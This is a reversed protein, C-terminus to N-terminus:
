NEQMLYKKDYSQKQLLLLYGMEYLLLREELLNIYFTIYKERLYNYKFHRREMLDFLTTERNTGHEFWLGVLQNYYNTLKRHITIQAMLLPHVM